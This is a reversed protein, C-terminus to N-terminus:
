AVSEVISYESTVTNMNSALNTAITRGRPGAVNLGHIHYQEGVLEKTARM